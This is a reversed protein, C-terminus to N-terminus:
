YGLEHAENMHLFGVLKDQLQDILMKSYKVKSQNSKTNCYNVRYNHCYLLIKNRQLEPINTIIGGVARIDDKLLYRVITRAMNFDTTYRSMFEVIKEQSPVDIYNRKTTTAVTTIKPTQPSQPSQVINFAKKLTNNEEELVSIKTYLSQIHTNLQEYTITNM